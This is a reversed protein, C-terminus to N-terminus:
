SWRSPEVLDNIRGAASWFSETEKLIVLGTVVVAPECDGMDTVVPEYGFSVLLRQSVGHCSDTWDCYGNICIM